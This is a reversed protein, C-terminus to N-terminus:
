APIYDRMRRNEAEVVKAPCGLPWTAGLGYKKLIEYSSAGLVAVFAQSTGPGFWLRPFGPVQPQQHVWLAKRHLLNRLFLSDNLLDTKDLTM